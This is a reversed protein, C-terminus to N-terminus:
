KNQLIQKIFTDNSNKAKNQKLLRFATKKYKVSNKFFFLKSSILLIVIRKQTESKLKLNKEAIYLIINWYNYAKKGSLINNNYDHFIKYLLFILTKSDIEKKDDKIYKDFTIKKLKEKINLLSENESLDTKTFLNHFYETKTLVRSLKIYASYYNNSSIFFPIPKLQPLGIEINKFFLESRKDFSQRKPFLIIDEKKTCYSSLIIITILFIGLKKKM